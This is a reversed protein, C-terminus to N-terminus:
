KSLLKEGHKNALGNNPNQYIKLKRPPMNGLYCQELISMLLYEQM